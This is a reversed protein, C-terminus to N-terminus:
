YGTKIYAEIVSRYVSETKPIKLEDMEKLLEAIKTPQNSVQCSHILRVFTEETAPIKRKKMLEYVNFCHDARGGENYGQILMNFIVTTPLIGFQVMEKFHQEMKLLNGKLILLCETFTSSHFDKCSYFRDPMPM